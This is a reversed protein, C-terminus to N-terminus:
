MNNCSIKIQRNIKERVDLLWENSHPYEDFTIPNINEELIQIVKERGCLTECLKLARM